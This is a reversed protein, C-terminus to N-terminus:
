PNENQCSYPRINTSVLVETVFNSLVTIYFLEFLHKKTTTKKKTEQIGKANLQMINKTRICQFYICFSFAFIYLMRHSLEINGLCSKVRASILSKWVRCKIRIPFTQDPLNILHLVPFTCCVKHSCLKTDSCHLTITFM